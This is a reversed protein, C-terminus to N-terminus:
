NFRFAACSLLLVLSKDCFADPRSCRTLTTNILVVCGPFIPAVARAIFTIPM